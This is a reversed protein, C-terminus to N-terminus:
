CYHLSTLVHSLTDAAFMSVLKLAYCAFCLCIAVNLGQPARAIPASTNFIGDRKFMFAQKYILLSKCRQDMRDGFAIAWCFAIYLLRMVAVLDTMNQQITTACSHIPTEDITARELSCM